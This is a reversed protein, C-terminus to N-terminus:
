KNKIADSNNLTHALNRALMVQAQLNLTSTTPKNPIDNEKDIDILLNQIKETFNQDNSHVKDYIENLHQISNLKQLTESSM